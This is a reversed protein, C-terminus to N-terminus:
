PRCVKCRRYGSRKADDLTAFNVKRNWPIKMAWQCSQRHYIFSSTNGIYQTSTGTAPVHIPAGTPPVYTKPGTPAYGIVKKEINIKIAVVIAISEFVVAIVTYLFSMNKPVFASSLLYVIWGFYLNIAFVAGIFGGINLSTKYIPESAPSASVQQAYDPVTVTCNVEFAFYGGNTNIQIYGTNRQDYPLYASTIAVAIIESSNPAISINPKDVSIWSNATSLTGYLMEDGDNKITFSDLSRTNALENNFDIRFRDLNLHAPKTKILLEILVKVEDKTKTDENELRILLYCSSQKQLSSIGSAKLTMELPLPESSLSKVDTVKLWPPLAKTDIWINTFTGGISKVLVTTEKSQNHEIDKFRIYKPSVDLKPPNHPSNLPKLLFNYASIVVTLEQEARKRVAEPKNQNKDPHLLQLKYRYQEKIEEQSADKSVGLIQCAEDWTM